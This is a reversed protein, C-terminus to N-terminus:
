PRVSFVVGYGPAPGLGGNSATGYLMGQQGLMLGQPTSGDKLDFSHLMTETWSDGSQSLRFVVGYDDRGGLSTAGYLSGASNLILGFFPNWGDSGDFAHLLNFKWKGTSPTLEFVTGCYYYQPGIGCVKMGGASATGYLNGNVDFTVGSTPDSGDSGGTFNYLVKEIWSGGSSPVLKYVVGNGYKGGQQATGYLDGASDWV